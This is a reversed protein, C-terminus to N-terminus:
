KVSGVATKTIMRLFSGVAGVVILVYGGQEGMVGVWDAAEVVGWAALMANFIITRFGTM